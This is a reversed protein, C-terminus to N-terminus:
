REVVVKAEPVTIRLLRGDPDTTAVMKVNSTEIEFTRNGTPRITLTGLTMQQPVFTSMTTERAGARYLLVLYHHFFNADLIAGDDPFNVEQPQTKGDVSYELESIPKGVKLRVINGKSEFEYFTPKLQQDLEMRSRLDFTQNEVSIQTHGVALYGESRQSISFEETGIKQGDQYITFHGSEVKIPALLM